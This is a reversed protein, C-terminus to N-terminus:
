RHWYGDGQDPLNPRWGYYVTVWRGQRALAALVRERENASTMDIVIPVMIVAYTSDLGNPLNLSPFDHLFHLPHSHTASGIITLVAYLCLRILRGAWAPM